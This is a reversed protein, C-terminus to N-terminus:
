RSKSLSKCASVPQLSTTGRQSKIGCCQVTQLYTLNGNRVPFASLLM